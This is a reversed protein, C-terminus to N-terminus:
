EAPTEEETEEVEFDNLVIRMTPCPYTVINDEGVLLSCHMCGQVDLGDENEFDEAQHLLAVNNLTRYLFASGQKLAELETENM